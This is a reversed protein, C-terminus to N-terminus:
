LNYKDSKIILNLIKVADDFDDTQYLIQYETIALNGNQNTINLKEGKDNYLPNYYFAFGKYKITDDDIEVINMLIYYLIDLRDSKIILNQKYKPQAPADEIMLSYPKLHKM